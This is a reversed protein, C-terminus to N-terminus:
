KRVFPEEHGRRHRPKPLRERFGDAAVPAARNHARVKQLIGEVVTQLDGTAVFEDDPRESLGPGSFRLFTVTAGPLHYVPNVGFMLVGAVTPASRGLDFFRLSALQEEVTRHNTKLVDPAVVASRYEDFLRLSLESL